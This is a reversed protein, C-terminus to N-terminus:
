MPLNSSLMSWRRGIARLKKLLAGREQTRIMIMIFCSSGVLITSLGGIGVSVINPLGRTLFRVLFGTSLMSVILGAVPLIVTRVHQLFSIKFLRMTYWPAYWNNTTVQAIMTGFVVGILGFRRALVISIFINIVGAILAPALFVIRGTAMTAAAMSQHHVELLMVTLLVWVIPFGVFHNPGLWAAIFRDIFCAVFSGLIVMVGLSFHLNRRLLEILAPTDGRAHAQSAIPMSTMVLMMSLSMLITVIKAVAQYNPVVAPGLISAIVINDTQLILIGGLLTAAYKLSPAILRRITHLDFRGRADPHPTLRSLAIRVIVLVCLSQLLYAVALGMFGTGSFVAVTMFLLGLVAGASRIIKENFVYGLGYIGAFWGEGVLNLAAGAIYVFWAPRTTSALEAPVVTRLYGWGGAAGVLAVIAALTAVIATCSRILTEIRAARATDTLEPNGAAFSIERGLTPSLGLDLFLVYSGLNTFLMWIGAMELPLHRLLISFQLLSVVVGIATLILGGLVGSLLRRNVSVPASL